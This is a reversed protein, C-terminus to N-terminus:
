LQSKSPNFMAFISILAAQLSGSGIIKNPKAANAAVKNARPNAKPVVMTMPM